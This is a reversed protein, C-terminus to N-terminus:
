RGKFFSYGIRLHLNLALDSKNELYGASKAFYYRYGLGLGLEYNYHGMDRRIGWTPVFAIDSVVSVNPYNSITFWNPHFQTKLAIFDGSNGKTNRQKSARRKLNYYLRPEATLIPALAFGTKEYFAGGWIAADFGIESRLSANRGLRAEHNGWIGLFGAQANFLSKEVSPKTQVREQASCVMGLGILM